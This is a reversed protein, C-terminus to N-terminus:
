GNEPETAPIPYPPEPQKWPCKGVKHKTIYFHYEGDDAKLYAYCRVTINLNMSACPVDSAHRVQVGEKIFRHFGKPLPRKRKDKRSVVCLTTPWKEEKTKYICPITMPGWEPNTFWWNHCVANIERARAWALDTEEEILQDFDEESVEKIKM